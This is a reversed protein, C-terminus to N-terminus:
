LGPTALGPWSRRRYWAGAILALASLGTLIQSSPEPTATITVNFGTSDYNGDFAPAEAFDLTTGAALAVNSLNFLAQNGYTTFNSVLFLNTTTNEVIAVNVPHSVTDIRQFLGALNYTGTAPATWRVDAIFNEGDLRLLNTPLVVTNAFTQTSGSANREM